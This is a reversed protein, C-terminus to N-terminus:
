PKASWWIKLGNKASLSRTASPASRRSPCASITAAKIADKLVEAEATAEEILSQLQRLERAKSEMENISM